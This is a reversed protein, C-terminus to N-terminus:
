KLILIEVDKGFIEQKAVCVSTQLHKRRQICGVFVSESTSLCHEHWRSGFHPGRGPLMVMVMPVASGPSGLEEKGM